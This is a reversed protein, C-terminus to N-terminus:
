GWLPRKRPVGSRRPYVDPCPATQRVRVFAPPGVITAALGLGLRELGKADWREGTSGPPESVVLDGGVRLLPAACEATVAPPGFGRAVVLDMQHRLAPDRGADEARLTRVTVRDALDLRAIADVLFATRRVMADVLVWTSAPLLVALVLGPVGGGSGLDVAQTVPDTIAGLFAEAHARQDEIPGPGLFGFARADSLVDDLQDPRM